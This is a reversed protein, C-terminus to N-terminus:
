GAHQVAGLSALDRHRVSIAYGILEGSDVDAILLMFGGSPHAQGEPVRANDSAFHGALEIATVQRDPDWSGGDNFFAREVDESRVHDVFEINGPSADGSHAASARAFRAVADARASASDAPASPAASGGSAGPSSQGSVLHAARVPGISRAGASIGIAVAAVILGSLVPTIKRRKLMGDGARRAGM